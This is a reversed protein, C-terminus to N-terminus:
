RSATVLWCAGGLRVGGPGVDPALATRAAAEAAERAAPPQNALLARLPGIRAFLAFASDLSDGLTLEADLPEIGVDSFGAGALIGRLYDPDAFAFGGPARPDAPPQPPLQAMAAGLPVAIWPNERLARWCLFCVRGSASLANRLQRFTVVPDAFFMVGFRSFLLEYDAAFTHSSADALIYTIDAGAAAARRRGHALMPASIDVGTVRAGRATLALSTTGTGCGVDLVRTGARVAARDLLPGTLPTLVRDLDMQNQVWTEAMDGNWFEIQTANPGQADLKAENSSM